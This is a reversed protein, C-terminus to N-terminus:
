GSLVVVRFVFVYKRMGKGEVEVEVIYIKKIM